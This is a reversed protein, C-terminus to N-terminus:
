TQFVPCLSSCLVSVPVCSLFQFVSVPVCLTSLLSELDSPPFGPPFLPQFVSQFCLLIYLCLLHFVTAPFCLSSCLAEHQTQYANSTVFHLYSCSM